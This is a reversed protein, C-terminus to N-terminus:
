IVNFIILLVVTLAVSVLLSGFCGLGSSFFLFL